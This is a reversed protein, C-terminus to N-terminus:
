DSWWEHWEACPIDVVRTPPGLKVNGMPTSDFEVFSYGPAGDALVRAQDETEAIVFLGSTGSSVYPNAWVFLKM